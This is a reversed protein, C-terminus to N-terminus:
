RGVRKRGHDDIERLTAHGHYVGIGVIVLLAVLGLCTSGVWFWCAIM